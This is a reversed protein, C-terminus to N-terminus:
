ISATAVRNSPRACWRQQTGHLRRQEHGLRPQKRDNAAIGAALGMQGAQVGEVAPGETMRLTNFKDALGRMMARCPEDLSVVLGLVM